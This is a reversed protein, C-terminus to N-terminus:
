QSAAAYLASVNAVDTAGPVGRYVATLYTPSMVSDDGTGHMLGIAHGLEHAIVWKRTAKQTSCQDNLYIDAGAFYVVGNAQYASSWLRQFNTGGCRGDADSYRHILIDNCAENYGMVFVVDSQVSNWNAVAKQVKWGSGLAAFDARVCVNQADQINWPGWEDAHAAATSAFLAALAGVIVAATRKM